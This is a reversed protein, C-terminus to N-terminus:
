TMHWPIRSLNELGATMVIAVTGAGAASASLFNFSSLFIAAMLVCGGTSNSIWTYVVAGCVITVPLFPFMWLGMRQYTDVHFFAPLHCLAWLLGL